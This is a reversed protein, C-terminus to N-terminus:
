EKPSQFSESSFWFSQTPYTLYSFEFFGKNWKNQYEINRKKGAHVPPINLFLLKPPFMGTPYGGFGIDNIGEFITM